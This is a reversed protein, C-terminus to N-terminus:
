ACHREVADLVTEVRVPKAIYDGGFSAAKQKLNSDASIVVVPIKALEPDKQKAEYFQSGTMVPMMLDLLIVCPTGSRKQLQELADLGDSATVVQYGEDHLILALTERIAADDDVVFILRQCSQTSM